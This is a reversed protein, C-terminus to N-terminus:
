FRFGKRLTFGWRSGTIGDGFRRGLAFEAPEGRVARTPGLRVALGVDGGLRAAEDAYWAGGWDFFPAVGVGVLDWVNDRVLIRNELAVWVFHTGTFVHAGFLRPGRQDLWPDFEGGPAPRAAVAAEAHLVITQRPLTQTVLTVRGHVRGSDLGSSGFIANGDVQASAFGRRWAASVQGHLEPGVGAHPGAYDWGGPAVWIGLRLIQSLDADERRGYSNFHELVRFKVHGLEFGLAAAATRSRPFPRITLSDFDERRWQAAAWIRVYDRSSAVPAFGGRVGVRVVRREPHSWLAGDRFM